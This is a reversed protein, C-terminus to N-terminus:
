VGRATNARSVSTWGLRVVAVAIGLVLLLYAWWPIGREGGGSAARELADRFVQPARAGVIRTDGVYTTPLGEFGIDNLIGRERLVRQRSPEATVCSEFAAVDLGLGSVHRKIAEPSLDETAFLFEVVESARPGPETCIAARAAYLAHQHRELPAHLRVLHVRDGYPALLEKLQGHLRRCFPCEFDAFEIVNIKGPQYFDRIAAPV